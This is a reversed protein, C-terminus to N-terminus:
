KRISRLESIFKHSTIIAFYADNIKSMESELQLPIFAGGYENFFGECNPYKKFYNESIL